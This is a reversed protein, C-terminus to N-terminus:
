PHEDRLRDGGAGHLTQAAHRVHMEIRIRDVDHGLLLQLRRHAGAVDEEAQELVRDVVLHHARVRVQARDGRHLDRGGVDVDGGRGRAANRHRHNGRDHRLRGGVKMEPQQEGHRPADDLAIARQARPGERSSLRHAELARPDRALGEAEDAAAPADPARDRPARPGERHLEEIPPRPADRLALFALQPQAVEREVVEEGFRIEDRHVRRELGLRTVQEPLALDCQHLGRCEEHVGRATGDDVFRREGARQAFPADGARAEIDELALRLDLCREELHGVHHERGM